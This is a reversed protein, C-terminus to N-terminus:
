RPVQASRGPADAVRARRDAPSPDPWERYTLHSGGVHHFAFMRLEM